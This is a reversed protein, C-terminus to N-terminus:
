KRYGVYYAPIFFVMAALLLWAGRYISMGTEFETSDMLVELRAPIAEGHSRLAVKMRYIDQEYETTERVLVNGFEDVTDGLSFRNKQTYVSDWRMWEREQAGGLYKQIQDILSIVNEESLIDRRLQAYRDQVKRLFTKDKFLREYWPKTQLATVSYELPAERANDMAGDFDWVPGISLKKGVDQYLYTSYQGADYSGFFENIIFYDVFSDVDIYDGYHSFVEEEDSYLISEIQKITSVIYNTQEQTNKTRGPYLCYFYSSHAEVSGEPFDIDLLRDDLADYRDRRLIFSNFQQSPSFDAVNVRNVGQKVSEMLLYVGQYMYGSETKIIVECYRSDPTYPLIQSSIHFALYNRIMSKDAMSGNLIWEHEAGMELLNLDNDQGSETLLKVLYQPKDYHMSSNGRRKIQMRTQIVAQDSLHNLGEQNDVLTLSGWVYPEVGEITEYMKEGPVIQTTIPPEQGGMDLIVLPLHSSYNENLTFDQNIGVLPDSEAPAPTLPIDYSSVSNQDDAWHRQISIGFVVALMCIIALGGIFRSNGKIM